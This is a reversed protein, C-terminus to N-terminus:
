QVLYATAGWAVISAIISLVGEAKDTTSDQYKSESSKSRKPLQSGTIGLDTYEPESAKSRRQLQGGIMGLVIICSFGGAYILFKSLVTLSQHNKLLLNPAFHHLTIHAANISLQFALVLRSNTKNNKM